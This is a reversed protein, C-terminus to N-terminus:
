TVCLGNMGESKINCAKISKIFYSDANIKTFCNTQFNPFPFSAYFTEQFVRIEHFNWKKRSDNWDLRFRFLFVPAQVFYPKVYITSILVLLFHEYNQNIKASCTTEIVTCVPVESQPPLSPPPPTPPTKLSVWAHLMVICAPRYFEKFIHICGAKVTM